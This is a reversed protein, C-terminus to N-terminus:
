CGAAVDDLDDILPPGDDMRCARRKRFRTFRLLAQLRSHKRSWMAIPSDADHPRWDLERLMESPWRGNLWALHESIARARDEGVLVANLPESIM